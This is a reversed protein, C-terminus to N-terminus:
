KAAAVDLVAYWLYKVFDHLSKELIREDDMHAGGIEESEVVPGIGYAQIGRFRLPSMDTAGTLLIPITLSDPYLRKQAAELAAFMETKLSTAPAAPRGANTQIEVGPDAIVRRLGEVLATLNEDPLARIDIIAEAESPIVNARTGAKFVNPSFATRIMSNHRIEHEAFYREVESHNGPDLIARYRAAEEPPSIGALRQFYARTTDDLRMPQTWAAARAIANALRVVANDPRPMSGHGATGRAILKVELRVKESTAVTVYSIKGDKVIGGGGEALAFEADIEGWHNDVVYRIGERAYGEEGGEALFIVDRDLKV